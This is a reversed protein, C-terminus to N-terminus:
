DVYGLSRLRERVVDDMKGAPEGSQGAGAAVCARLWSGSAARLQAVLDPHDAAVDHQEGPDSALDYLEYKNIEVDHIGKWSGLRVVINTDGRSEKYPRYYKKRNIRISPIVPQDDQAPPAGAEMAAYWSRGHWSPSAELQLRDALTPALDVLSVIADLKDVHPTCPPQRVILPVHVLEEYESQDHQWGGHECFEQGHDATVIFITDDWVGRRTLADIVSGVREDALRVAADYMVKIEDLHDALQRMLQTQEDTNDTTGVPRGAAFDVRTLRRYHLLMKGISQKQDNPCSGFEKILRQPAAYADHPEVNHIYLFFPKDGATDLWADLVKGDTFRHFACQDFGRDLGSTPGAYPNAYFSATQYGAQKMREALTEASASVKQGDVVVGHECPFKSTMLSVVSPLTWPAPAYCHTFVTGKAALADIRPSTPKDYGYAGLRDARLTDILFVVVNPRRGSPLLGGNGNKAREAAQRYPITYVGIWATLALAVFLVSVGVWRWNGPELTPRATGDQREEEM